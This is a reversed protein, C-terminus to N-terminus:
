RSCDAAASRVKPPNSAMTIKRQIVSQRLAREASNNTLEVGPHELFTWLAQKRSVLKWCTRVTQAWPTREVRECGLDGVRQLTAEFQHRIPWCSQQLVLWDITGDRWHHWQVFLQQQLGLLEAGIQASAGQREAITTLDRIM